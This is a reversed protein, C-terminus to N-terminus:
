FIQEMQYLKSYYEGVELYKEICRDVCSKEGTNLEKQEFSKLCLKNCQKQMNLTYRLQVKMQKAKSRENEM